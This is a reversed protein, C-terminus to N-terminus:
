KWTVVAARSWFSGFALYGHPRGDFSDDDLLLDFVSLGM